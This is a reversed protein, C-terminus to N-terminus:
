LVIRLVHLLIAVVVIIVLAYVLLHLLNVPGHM